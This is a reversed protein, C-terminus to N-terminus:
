EEAVRIHKKFIELYEDRCFNIGEICHKEKPCIDCEMCGDFSDLLRIWLEVPMPERVIAKYKATEATLIDLREKVEDQHHPATMGLIQTYALETEENM